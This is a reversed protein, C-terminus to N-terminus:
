KLGVTKSASYNILKIDVPDKINTKTMTFTHINEEVKKIEYGMLMYAWTIYAMNLQRTSLSYIRRLSKEYLDRNTTKAM